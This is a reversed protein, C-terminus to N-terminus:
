PEPDEFEKFAPPKGLEAVAAVTLFTQNRMLMTACLKNAARPNSSTAIGRITSATPAVL